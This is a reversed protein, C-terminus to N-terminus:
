KRKIKLKSFDIKKTKEIEIETEEIKKKTKRIDFYLKTFIGLLILFITLSLIFYFNIRSDKVFTITYITDVEPTGDKAKIILRVKNGAKLNIIDNDMTGKDVEAESANNYEVKIVMSKNYKPKYLLEYDYKGPEFKFTEDIGFIRINKLTTDIETDLNEINIKYIKESKNESVVKITVENKGIVIKEPKKIEVVAKIDEPTATIDLETLKHATINYELLNKNFDLMKPNANIVLTKLNNNSGRNDERLITVVYKKEAGSAAVVVIEFVNEGYNLEVNTKPEFGKKFTATGDNATAKFNVNTVEPALTIRYTYTSPSFNIVDEDNIKLEKLTNDTSKIDVKKTVKEINEVTQSSKIKIASEVTLTNDSKNYDTRVKFKLRVITTKGTIGEHDFTINLPSTLTFDASMNWNDRREINLLEMNSSEYIFTMKYQDIDEVSTAVIDVYIEQGPNAINPAVIEIKTQGYVISPTFLLLFFLIIKIRKM